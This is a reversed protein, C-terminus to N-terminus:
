ERHLCFVTGTALGHVTGNFQLYIRKHQLKEARKRTYLEGVKHEKYGDPWEYVEDKPHHAQKAPWCTRENLSAYPKLFNYDNASYKNSCLSEVTLNKGLLAALNLKDSRHILQTSYHPLSSLSEEGHISEFLLTEQNFSDFVKQMDVNVHARMSRGSLISKLSQLTM